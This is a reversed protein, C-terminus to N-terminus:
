SLEDDNCGLVESEGSPNSNLGGTLAGCPRKIADRLTRVIDACGPQKAPDEDKDFSPKFNLM